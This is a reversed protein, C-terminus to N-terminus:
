APETSHRRPLSDLPSRITHMRATSVHLYRTTSRISAHGLLVQLTRLDVGQELLHTGFAHRLSHPHVRVTLGAKRAAKKMAAAVAARSICRGPERGPFLHPGAPRYRKFYGRLTALLEPSLLADRERGRKADHIHIVRNPSDIDAM